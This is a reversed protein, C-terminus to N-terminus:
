EGIEMEIKNEWTGRFNPCQPNVCQMTLVTFARTKTDPSNDGELVLKSSIIVPEVDCCNEKM